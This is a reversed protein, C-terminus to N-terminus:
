WFTKAHNAHKAPLKRKRNEAKGKEGHDGDEDEGVVFLLIKGGAQVGDAPGVVNEHEIGEAGVGRDRESPSSSRPDKLMGEDVEGLLAIEAEGVSVEFMGPDEMEVGIFAHRVVEAGLQEPRHRVVLVGVPYRELM